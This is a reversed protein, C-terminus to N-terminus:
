EIDTARPAESLTSIEQLTSIDVSQFGGTRFYMFLETGILQMSTLSRDSPSSLKSIVLQRFQGDKTFLQVGLYDGIFCLDKEIIITSPYCLKGKTRIFKSTAEKDKEGWTMIPTFNKKEFVQIRHNHCDCVYIFGSVSATAQPYFFEGKNSHCTLEKSGLVKILVGKHNYVLVQNLSKSSFYCFDADFSLHCTITHHDDTPPVSFKIIAKSSKFDWTYIYDHDTLYLDGNWFCIDETWEPINKFVEQNRIVESSSSKEQEQGSASSKLSQSTIKRTPWYPGYGDYTSSLLYLFKGDTTLRNIESHASIENQESNTAIESKRHM